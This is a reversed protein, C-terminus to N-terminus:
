FQKEKMWRGPNRISRVQDWGVQTPIKIQDLSAVTAAGADVKVDLGGHAHVQVLDRVCHNQHIVHSAGVCRYLLVKAGKGAVRFKQVAGQLSPDSSFSWVHKVNTSLSLLINSHISWYNMNHCATLPYTTLHHCSSTGTTLQRTPHNQLSAKLHFSLM